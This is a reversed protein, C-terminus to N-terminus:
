RLISQTTMALFYDYLEHIAPMSHLRLLSLQKEYNRERRLNENISEGDMEGQKFYLYSDITANAVVPVTVSTGGTTDLGSSKYWLIVDEGEANDIMIKRNRWDLKFYYENKGGTAAYGYDGYEHESPKTTASDGFDTYVMFRRETFFWLQGMWLLGVAVFDIMDDPMSIFGLANVSIEVEKFAPLDHIHLERVCDAAHEYYNFFDDKPLKYKLMFREVLKALEVLAATDAM